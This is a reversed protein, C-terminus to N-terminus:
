VVQVLSGIARRRVLGPECLRRERQELLLPLGLLEDSRVVAVDQDLGLELPVVEGVFQRRDDPSLRAVQGDRERREHKGLDLLPDVRDDEPRAEGVRDVLGPLHDQM